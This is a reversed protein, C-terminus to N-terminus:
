AKEAVTPGQMLSLIRAIPEYKSCSSKERTMRANKVENQQFLSIWILCIEGWDPLEPTVSALKDMGVIPTSRCIM